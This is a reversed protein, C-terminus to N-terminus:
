LILIIYWVNIKGFLWYFICKPVLCFYFYINIHNFHSVCYLYYARIASSASACSEFDHPFGHPNSDWKPCWFSFFYLCLRHKKRKRTWFTPSSFSHDLKPVTLATGFRLCFIDPPCKKRRPKGLGVKPVMPRIKYTNFYWYKRSKKTKFLICCTHLLWFISTM